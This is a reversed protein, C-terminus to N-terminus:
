LLVHRFANRLAHDRPVAGVGSPFCGLVKVPDDVATIERGTIQPGPDDVHDV